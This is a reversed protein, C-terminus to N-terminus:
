GSAIKEVAEIMADIARDDREGQQDPLHIPRVSRGQADAL